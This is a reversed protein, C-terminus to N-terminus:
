GNNRIVPVTETTDGRHLTFNPSAPNVVYNIKYDKPLFCQVLLADEWQPVEINSINNRLIENAIAVHNYKLQPSNKRITFLFLGLAPLLVITAAAGAILKPIRPNQFLVKIV